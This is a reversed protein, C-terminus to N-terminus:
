YFCDFVKIMKEKLIFHLISINFYDFCKVTVLNLNIISQDNKFSSKIFLFYFNLLHYKFVLVIMCLAICHVLYKFYGMNLDFNNFIIM